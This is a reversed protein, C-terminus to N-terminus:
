FSRQFRVMAGFQGGAADGADTYYLEPTVVFGPVVTYNLNGAVQFGDSLNEAAVSEMWQGQINFRLKDSARYSGGAIISLSEEGAAANTRDWTTYGSTSEGYMAMAFVSLQDNVTVDARVKGSWGGRAVGGFDDRTDYGLVASLDVMGANYGVGAVVHPMYDDIGWATASNSDDGQELSIGARFAGGDYTYSILNTDFPGYTGDTIVAGAYGTWTTFLTEDKGVRLGGLQIWAFNLSPATGTTYGGTTASTDWNFRFESYTRLTGLETESATSARISARAHARYTGDGTFSTREYAEGARVDYRIYGHIRLCTETGPIYFFGTGFADCVRVYEVPEPEAAVIADAARAGSVAVLAAASGLLLSKINM